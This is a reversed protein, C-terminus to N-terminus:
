HCWWGSIGVAIAWGFVAGLISVLGSGLGRKVSKGGFKQLLVTFLMAYGIILSSLVVRSNYDKAMVGVILGYVLTTGPIISIELVSNPDHM